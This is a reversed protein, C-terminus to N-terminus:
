FKKNNIARSRIENKINDNLEINKIIIRRFCVPCFCEITYFPVDFCTDCSCVIELDFKSLNYFKGNYSSSKYSDRLLHFTDIKDIYNVINNILPIYKAKDNDYVPIFRGNVMETRM